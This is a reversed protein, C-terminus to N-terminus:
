GIGPEGRQDVMGGLGRGILFGDFAAFFGGTFTVTAALVGASFALASVAAAAIGGGGCGRGGLAIKSASNSANAADKFTPSQVEHSEIVIM